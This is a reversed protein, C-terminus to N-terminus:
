YKKINKCFFDTIKEAQEIIDYGAQKVERATAESHTSKNKLAYGSWVEPAEDLGVYDLLETVRASQPVVEASTLCYLGSCQAEILVIGFGEFLSPLIFVDMAQILEDVDNRRGLLVVRDAIDLEGCRDEIQSRMEGDGVLLLVSEPKEALIKKFIELLFLHNKEYRLRGVNGVIFKDELGLEKRKKERTDPSFSFKATDVANPIIRYNETNRVSEDFFFEGAIDSCAWFHNAYSGIRKKNLKHLIKNLRGSMNVNSHSHVIRIPVGAKEAYKLVLVDSLYCLNSWVADYKKAKLVKKIAKICALPNKGRSPVIIIEGGLANIEDSYAPSENYALFDFSLKERDMHRFYNMVFSEVGGYGTSMGFILIRKKQM